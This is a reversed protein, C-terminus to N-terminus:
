ESLKKELLENLVKPNAQGKMQKMCQGVFFGIVKTNGSKYKEVQAPSADLASQVVAELAATDSVQKMGREEVIQHPDKDHEICAVLVEKGQKTSISESAILEVVDCLRQPTLASHAIDFSAHTNMYAAVDNVLMNAVPKALKQASAGACQMCQEFANTLAPVDVLARADYSSLAFNNMFREIKQDPLEPLKARVSEIWEDTLDYPALDPEPFLRYDDATEKVRMVITRKASPDWHRTEQRITGGEELVEAQRCIEYALGDHLNKFSNMNKLETKTGFEAAGRRRLSVNGDCRMSGEEMSCDSIGLTLYIQRLKHMFLRAEEPTRLEPETVLEILPTGARNYDVLSHTAGAIRGEGGGIHVMKGADEEMHIRTIGVHAVYGDETKTVNGQAEGPALAAIDTREKAAPGDVALDLHGRMCFAVPGQTTQFNKAMDPYMYNKRYFMSHKEIDCNTALGALVISEIAAKNPVPLAGPLGLCVPCTHTNPTDGFELKCGCFMKTTLTTLEAHIELGIVAEWDQLVEELKKM